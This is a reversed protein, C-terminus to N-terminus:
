KVLSLPFSKKKKKKLLSQSDVKGPLQFHHMRHNKKKEYSFHTDDTRTTYHAHIEGGKNIGTVNHLTLRRHLTLKAQMAGLASLGDHLLTQYSHTLQKGETKEARGGLFFSHVGHSFV